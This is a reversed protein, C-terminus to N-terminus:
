RGQRVGTSAALGPPQSGPTAPTPLASIPGTVVTIGAATPIGRESVSIGTEIGMQAKLYNMDLQSRGIEKGSPDKPVVVSVPKGNLLEVVDFVGSIRQGSGHLRPVRIIVSTESDFTGESHLQIGTATKKETVTGKGESLIFKKEKGDMTPAVVSRTGSEIERDIAANIFGSLNVKSGAESNCWAQLAEHSPNPSTPNFKKYADKVAELIFHPHGITIIIGESDGQPASSSPASRSSPGAAVPV